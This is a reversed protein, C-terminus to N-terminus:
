DDTEEMDMLGLQEGTIFAGELEVLKFPEDPDYGDTTFDGLWVLM